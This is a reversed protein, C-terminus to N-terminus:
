DWDAIRCAVLTNEGCHYAAAVRHDGDAILLTHRQLDCVLLVPSLPVGSRIKRLKRAVGDNHEPLLAGRPNSDPGVARLVDKAKWRIVTPAARLEATIRGACRPPMLLCLFDQAAEFDHDEPEPLWEVNM